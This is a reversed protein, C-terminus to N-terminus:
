SKHDVTLYQENERANYLFNISIIINDNTTQQPKINEKTDALELLWVDFSLILILVANGAMDFKEDFALVPELGQIKSIFCLSIDCITSIKLLSRTWTTSIETEKDLTLWPLSSKDSKWTWNIFGIPRSIRNAKSELTRLNLVRGHVKVTPMLSKSNCTRSLWFSQMLFLVFAVSNANSVTWFITRVM